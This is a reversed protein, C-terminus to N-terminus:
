SIFSNYLLREEREFKEQNIIIKRLVQKFRIESEIIAFLKSLYVKAESEQGLVVKLSFNRAKPLAAISISSPRGLGILGRLVSFYKSAVGTLSFTITMSKGLPDYSHEHLSVAGHSVIWDTLSLTEDKIGARSITQFASTTPENNPLSAAIHNYMIFKM